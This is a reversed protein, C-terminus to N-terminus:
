TRVHFDNHSTRQFCCHHAATQWTPERTNPFSYLIASFPELSLTPKPVYFLHSCWLLCLLAKSLACLGLGGVELLICCLPPHWLHSTPHSSKALLSKLKSICLSDGRFWSHHHLFHALLSTNMSEWMILAFAAWSFPLNLVLLLAAKKIM